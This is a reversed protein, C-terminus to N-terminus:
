IETAGIKINVLKVRLALKKNRCYQEMIELRHAAQAITKGECLKLIKLETETRM